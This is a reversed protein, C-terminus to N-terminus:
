FLIFIFKYFNCASSPFSLIYPINQSKNSGKVIEVKALVKLMESILNFMKLVVNISTIKQKFRKM